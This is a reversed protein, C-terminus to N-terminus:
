GAPHLAAAVTSHLRTLEDPHRKAFRNLTTWADDTSPGSGMWAPGAISPPALVGATAVLGHLLSGGILDAPEARHIDFQRPWRGRRSRGRHTSWWATCVTQPSLARECVVTVTSSSGRAALLADVSEQVSAETAGDVWQASLTVSPNDLASWPEVHATVECVQAFLESLEEITPSTFLGSTGHCGWVRVPDAALTAAPLAAVIRRVQEREGPRPDDPDFVDITAGRHVVPWRHIGASDDLASLAQTLATLVRPRDAAPSTADTTM